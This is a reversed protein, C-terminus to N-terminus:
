HGVWIMVAAVAGCWLAIATGLIWMRWKRRSEGAAWEADLAEQFLRDRQTFYGTENNPDGATGM